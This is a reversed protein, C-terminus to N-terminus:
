PKLKVPIEVVNTPSGDVASPEFVMITGMGASATTFPVSIDFTGRTGTGSTAMGAREVLRTGDADLIRVTFAAEFTNGTGWIRVPSTVTSGPTPGEVLLAPTASEYDARTQPSGLMFGEGTFAEVAKGDIRFLVRDVTSFQTLTYVVQALRLDVSLTGGGSEYEGSLDVTATGNRISLGRLSTGVPVESTLGYGQDAATPGLLLQQLAATAVAKTAPVERTVVGLKEGRIFYLRVSRPKAPQAPTEDSGDEAPLVATPEVSSTPEITSTADKGPGSARRDEATVRGILVGIGVAVVIALVGLAWVWWPKKNM